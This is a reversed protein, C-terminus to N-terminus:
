SLRIETFYFMTYNQTLVRISISDFSLTGRSVGQSDQAVRSFARRGRMSAPWGVGIYHSDLDLCGVVREIGAAFGYDKM